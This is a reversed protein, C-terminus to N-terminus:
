LTIASYCIPLPLPTVIRYVIHGPEFSEVFHVENLMWGIGRGLGGGNAPRRWFRERRERGPRAARAAFVREAEAQAGVHAALVTAIYQNLSVGARAAQATGIAKLEETLRLPVTTM